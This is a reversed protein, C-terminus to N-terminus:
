GDNEVVQIPQPQPQPMPPGIQLFLIAIVALMNGLQEWQLGM